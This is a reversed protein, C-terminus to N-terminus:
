QHLHKQDEKRERDQSGAGPFSINRPRGILARRGVILPIEILADGGADLALVADGGGAGGRAPESARLSRTPRILPAYDAAMSRCLERM